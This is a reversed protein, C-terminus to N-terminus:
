AGRIKGPGGYQRLSGKPISSRYGFSLVEAGDIAVTGDVPALVDLARDLKALNLQENAVAHELQRVDQEKPKATPKMPGGGRSQAFAARNPTEPGVMTMSVDDTEDVFMSM